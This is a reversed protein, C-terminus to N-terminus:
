GALREAYLVFFLRNASLALQRKKSLGPRRSAALCQAIIAAVAPGLLWRKANPM